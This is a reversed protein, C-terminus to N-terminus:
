QTFTYEHATPTTTHNYTHPHLAARYQSTVNDHIHINLYPIGYHLNYLYSARADPPFHEARQTYKHTRLCVIPSAVSRRIDQQKLWVSWEGSIVWNAKSRSLVTVRLNLDLVGSKDRNGCVVRTASVSGSWYINTQAGTKSYGTVFEVEVACSYV